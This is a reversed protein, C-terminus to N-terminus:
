AESMQSFWKKKFVLDRSTLLSLHHDVAQPQIPPPVTSNITFIADGGPIIFGLSPQVAASMGSCQPSGSPPNTPM